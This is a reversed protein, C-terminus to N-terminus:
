KEEQQKNKQEADWEKCLTDFANSPFEKRSEGSCISEYNPPSNQPSGSTVTRSTLGQSHYHNDCAFQLLMQSLPVIIVATVFVLRFINVNSKEKKELLLM